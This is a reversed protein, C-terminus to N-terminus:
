IKWHRNIIVIPMNKDQLCIALFDSSTASALVGTVITGTMYLDTVEVTVNGATEVKIFL